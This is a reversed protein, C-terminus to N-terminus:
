GHQAEFDKMYAVLAQVGEGWSAYVQQRPAFQYGTAVWPTTFIQQLQTRQTGDSQIGIRNLGTRRVGLWSTWDANWTVADRAYWETSAEQRNGMPTSRTPDGMPIITTGDVTGTGVWNNAANGVALSQLNRLVGLSLQHRYGAISASGDVHTELSQNRRLEGEIVGSSTNDTNDVVVGLRAAERARRRREARRGGAHATDSRNPRARMVRPSIRRRPLSDTTSNSRPM